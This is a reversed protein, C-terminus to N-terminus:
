QLDSAAAFPDEVAAFFASGLVLGKMLPGALEGVLAVVVFFILLLLLRVGVIRLASQHVQTVGAVHIRSQLAESVNRRESM